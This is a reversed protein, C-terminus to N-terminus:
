TRGRVDPQGRVPVLRPTNLADAVTKAANGALDTPTKLKADTSM